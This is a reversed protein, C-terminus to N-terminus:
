SAFPPTSITNEEAMLHILFDAFRFILQWLALHSAWIMLLLFSQHKKELKQIKCLYRNYRAKIQFCVSFAETKKKISEVPNTQKWLTKTEM